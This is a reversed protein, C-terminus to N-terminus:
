LSNLEELVELLIEKTVEPPPLNTKPRKPLEFIRAIEDDMEESVNIMTAIELDQLLYKIVESNKLMRLRKMVYNYNAKREVSLIFVGEDINQFFIKQKEMNISILGDDLEKTISLIAASFGSFLHVDVEAKKFSYHYITTGEHSIITLYRIKQM